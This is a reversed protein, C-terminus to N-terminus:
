GESTPILGAGKSQLQSQSTQMQTYAQEVARILGEQDKPKEWKQNTWELLEKCLNIPMGASACTGALSWLTSHRSSPQSELVKQLRFFCVRALDADNIILSGLKKEPPTLMPISLASGEESFLLHKRIGTKISKRGPNSLLRAHQYLTLDVRWGREKVWELQSFPVNIGTMPVIHIYIHYGKGGSLWVSFKLGMKRIATVYTEMDQKALELNDERDIDLVLYKSYVSFRGLDKSHGQASIQEADEKSFWYYSSYGADDRSYFQPLNSVPIMTGNRKHPQICYECYYM